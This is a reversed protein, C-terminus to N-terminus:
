RRFQNLINLRVVMEDEKTSSLSGGRILGNLREREQQAWDDEKTQITKMYKVYTMANEDGLAKAMTEASKLIDDRSEPRAIFRQALTDLDDIRGAAADLRGEINRRTGCEKNLFIMFDVAERHGDTYAIGNKNQKTFLKITPFGSVGYKAAIDKHKDADINAIVVDKQNKYVGALKDWVPALKKCHGCWPAYFEVFVHKNADQVIEDFNTPNLVVVESFTKSPIRANTGAKGNIYDIINQAERGGTYDQPTTSGKPFFRLSPFGKIGFRTKLTKHKDADVKAVVVDGSFKAFADGVIEYEPALKKCHGCWPAYFEIFTHKTGDVVSDFDEPTLEKVNGECLIFDSLLLSFILSLIIKM